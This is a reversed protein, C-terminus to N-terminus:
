KIALCEGDTNYPDFAYQCTNKDTCTSCTLNSVEPLAALCDKCIPGVINKYGYWSYLEKAPLKRRCWECLFEKNPTWRGCSYSTTIEGAFPCVGGDAHACTGCTKKSEGAPPTLGKNRAGCSMVQPDPYVNCTHRVKCTCCGFYRYIKSHLIRLLKIPNLM